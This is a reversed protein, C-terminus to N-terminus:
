YQCILRKYQFINMLILFPHNKYCIQEPKLVLLWVNFHKLNM